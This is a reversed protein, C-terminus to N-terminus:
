DDYIASYEHLRSSSSRADRDHFIGKWEFSSCASDIETQDCCFIFKEDPILKSPFAFKRRYRLLVNKKWRRHALPDLGHHETRNNHPLVAFVPAAIKKMNNFLTLNNYNREMRKDLGNTARMCIWSQFLLGSACRFRISRSISWHDHDKVSRKNAPAKSM